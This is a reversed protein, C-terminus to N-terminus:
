MKGNSIVMVAVICTRSVIKQFVYSGWGCFLSFNGLQFRWIDPAAEPRKKPFHMGSSM